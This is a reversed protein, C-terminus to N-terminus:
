VDALLAILLAKQTHLRNEAQNFVVSQPGDLVEASVELDRYAPLCHLFIADDKAKNMMTQTVQFGAFDHLRKEKEEEQGMSAWVDTYVADADEVAILPNNHFTLTAGTTTALTEAENWVTPDPEYGKPTSITLHIGTAAAGHMLSHLVNNGDGIYAVKLGTLHGKEEQLTLLDALAQCPHYPDTLGNIVPVTTTQALIEVSEHDFTRILIADIYRALVKATDEISEGRGLQIDQRNLNLVHGGLQMMGVEFSVRTRTSPKDFIMALTKGILPKFEEDNNTSKKLQYALDLLNTIEEPSLNTLTLLSKGKCSKLVHPVFSTHM